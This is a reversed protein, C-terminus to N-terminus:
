DNKSFPFRMEEAPTEHIDIRPAGVLLPLTPGHITAMNIATVTRKNDEVDVIATGIRIEGEKSKWAIEDGTQVFLLMAKCNIVRM